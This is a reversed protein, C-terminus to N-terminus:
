IVKIILMWAAIVFLIYGGIKLVMQTREAAKEGKESYVKKLVSKKKSLFIFYISLIIFIIPLILSINLMMVGKEFRFLDTPSDVFITNLM